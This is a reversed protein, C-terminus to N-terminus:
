CCENVFSLENIPVFSIVPIVGMQQFLKIAVCVTVVFPETVVSSM